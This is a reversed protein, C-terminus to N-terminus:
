GTKGLAHDIAAAVGMGAGAGMVLGDAQVILEPPRCSGITTRHPNM